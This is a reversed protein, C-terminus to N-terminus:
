LESSGNFEKPTLFVKCREGLKKMATNATHEDNFLGYVASGSGSMQAFVAGAAYMSVKTFAITEYKHLVVPEFDNHLLRNLQEPTNLHERVIQKLSTARAEPSFDHKHKLNPDHIAQYAWATSVHVDPYAVVIWYPVKLDFYELIEGRGTAYASGPKLFYPVDSGIQTAIGHLKSGSIELNWFQVLGLLTAAADSSGGGLGAGVPINKQLSIEVGDKIGSHQQLLKAARVCLNRDDVPLFHVNSRFLIKDSHEFTLDDFPHVRHFITEINHYGDPRQKLIRLGLNIKAYTRLTTM